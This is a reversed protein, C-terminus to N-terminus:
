YFFCKKTSVFESSNREFVPGPQDWMDRIGVCVLQM